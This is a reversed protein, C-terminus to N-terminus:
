DTGTAIWKGNCFTVNVRVSDTIGGTKELESIVQDVCDNLIGNLLAISVATEDQSENYLENLEDLHDEAFKEALSQAIGQVDITSGLANPDYKYIVDADVYNKGWGSSGETIQYSDYLGGIYDAFKDIAANAEANLVSADDLGMGELISEMFLTGIDFFGSDELQQVYDASAHEYLKDKDRAVMADLFDAGASLIKEGNGELELGSVLWKNDEGKDLIISFNASDGEYGLVREVTHDATDKSTVTVLTEIIKLQDMNSLESAHEILYENWTENFYGSVSDFDAKNGNFNCIISVPICVSKEENEEADYLQYATIFNGLLRPCISDYDAKADDPLTIGYGDIEAYFSEMTDSLDNYIPLYDSVVDSKSLENAKEIDGAKLAELFDRAVDEARYASFAELFSGQQEEDEGTEGTDEGDLATGTVSWVKDDGKALTMIFNESGAGSGLVEEVAHDAAEQASGTIVAEIMQPLEMGGLEDGHEGVYQAWVENLSNKISSVKSADFGYSLAATVDVTGDSMEVPDSLEYSSIYAERLRTGVSDYAAKAEESIELGLDAYESYFADMTTQIKEFVPFTDSVVENTKEIEGAALAEMVEGATGEPTSKAGCAALSFSLCSVVGILVSMRYFQKM